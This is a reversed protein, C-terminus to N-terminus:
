YFLAEFNDTIKMILRPLFTFNFCFLIIANANKTAFRKLFVTREFITESGINLLVEHIMITQM